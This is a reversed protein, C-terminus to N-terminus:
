SWDWSWGWSRRSGPGWPDEVGVPGVPEGPGLLHGVMLVRDKADALQVLQEAEGVNMTLPKEVYVHKGSHMVQRATAFHHVAPVALVVAEIEDDELVAEFEAVVDVDHYHERMSARVKDDNDCVTKLRVNPLGHFVRVLNKGWYGAGVCALTLRPEAM